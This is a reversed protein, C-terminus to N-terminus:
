DIGWFKKVEVDDPGYFKLNLMDKLDSITHGIGFAILWQGWSHKYFVAGAIIALVGYIWHDPTNLHGGLIHGIRGIAFGGFAIVALLVLEM